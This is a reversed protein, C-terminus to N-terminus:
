FLNAKLDVEHDPPGQLFRNPVIKAGCAVNYITECYYQGSYTTHRANVMLRAYQGPAINIARMVAHRKPQGSGPTGLLGLKFSGNEGNSIQLVGESGPVTDKIESDVLTPRFSEREAMRHRQVVYEGLGGGIVFARPLAARENSRPAGRTAKTWIIEVVQVVLMIHATGRFNADLPRVSAHLSLPCKDCDM